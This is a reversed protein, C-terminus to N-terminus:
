HKCIIDLGGNQIKKRIIYIKCVLKNNSFQEMRCFLRKYVLSQQIGLFRPSLIVDSLTVNATSKLFKADAAQSLIESKDLRKKLMKQGETM